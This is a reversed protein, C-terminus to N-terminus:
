GFDREFFSTAVGDGPRELGRGRTRENITTDNLDAFLRHPRIQGGLRLNCVRNEGGGGFFEVLIVECFLSVVGHQNHHGCGLVGIDFM